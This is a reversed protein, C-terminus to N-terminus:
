ETSQGLTLLVTDSLEKITYPKKLVASVGMDLAAQIDDNMAFGSVIFAKQGPHIRLIQEYTQRGNMGPTMVMDLMVLDVTDHEFFELAKEGSPVTTVRFNLETLMKEAITLLLPEDDVVLVTKNDGYAHGAENKPVAIMGQVEAKPFYLRFCTGDGNSSVTVKGNHEQLANWVVALGLGSGSKGMQKTSYFPEFIHDLDNANIGHGDDQISVVVYESTEEPAASQTVKPINYTAISITGTNDKGIAEVSNTVLNMLCKKVHVPSCLIYPQTADLYFRLDIKDSIAQLQLFEPSAFYEQVLDNLNNPARVTAANRSITLLDSVVAAARKGAGSITELPKYLPNLKEMNHLLIEPYSVIGSLINNLDHAVGSALLGLAEMKESQHLKIEIIHREDEIKRREEMERILNENAQLLESTRQQITQELQEKHHLLDREAKTRETIENKLRLNGAELEQSYIIAQNKSKELDIFVAQLARRTMELSQGLLGIEDEQHWHFEENLHKKALKESQSILIDIPKIIKRRLLLFLVITSLLFPILIIAMYRSSQMAITQELQSTDISVAVNGIEKGHYLITKERTLLNASSTKTEALKEIFPGEDSLVKISVIRADSMFANMLPLGTEPVLNWLPEQMTLALIDLIRTHEKELEQTMIQKQDILTMLTAFIVPTLFSLFLVLAIALRLKLNRM